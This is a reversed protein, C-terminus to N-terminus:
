SSQQDGNCRGESKYQWLFDPGRSWSVPLDKVLCGRSIVDAPNEDVPVHRRQDPNSHDRIFAVRNAVFVKFRRSM